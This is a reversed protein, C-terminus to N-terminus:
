QLPSARNKRYRREVADTFAVAPESYINVHYRRFVEEAILQSAETWTPTDRLRRLVREYAARDGRFLHTIFLERNRLGTEGLVERELDATPPEPIQETLPKQYFQMWRPLPTTGITPAQADEPATQQLQFRRWLPLTAEEESETTISPKDAILAHLTEATLLAPGKAQLRQVLYPQQKEAFFAILLSAPLATPREPLLAALEYLPRLLRLWADADFDATLKRDIRHLLETFRRRQLQNIQKEEVYLAVAERFYAYPLFWHMRQLVKEAPLVEDESFIHTTLTHIPRTLYQVLAQVSQSLLEPWVQPPIRLHSRLRTCLAQYTQQVEPAEVEFWTNDLSPLRAEARAIAQHQLYHTLADPIGLRRLTHLPYAQSPPFAVQLQRTLLRIFETM